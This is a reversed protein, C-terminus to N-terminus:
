RRLTAPKFTELSDVAAVVPLNPLGFLEAAVRPLGHKPVREVSPGSASYRALEDDRLRIVEFETCRVLTLNGVVWSEGLTHHRQYAAEIEADSAATLTYHCFPIWEGAIERDQVLIDASARQFRWGLGARRIVTPEDIPIPEFFPAGNAVDVLYERGHLTVISAQHSAPFSIQALVPRASYGLAQLLRRFMPTADVCVGGGARAEWAQLTTDLDLREVPGDPTRARRMISSINEFPVGLVQARCLRGLADLSAAERDLNLLRLYRELWASM